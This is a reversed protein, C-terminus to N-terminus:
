EKPSKDTEPTQKALRDILQRIRFTLHAVTGPSITVVNRKGQAELEELIPGLEKQLVDVDIRRGARVLRYQTGKAGKRKEATVGHRGSKVMGALVARVDDETVVVPPSLKACAEIAHAAIVTEYHWKGDAKDTIARALEPPQNAHKDNSIILPVADRYRERPNDTTSTDCWAARFKRETLRPRIAEFEPNAVTTAFQLFQGFRVHQDVWQRSKRETTALREQTWGTRVFLAALAQDARARAQTSSGDGYTARIDERERRYQEETMGSEFQHVTAPTM